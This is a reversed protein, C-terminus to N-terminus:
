ISHLQDGATIAFGAVFAKAPLRRGGSRQLETLCLVGDGCAVHVGDEDVALIKGAAAGRQVAAALPHAQWVKILQDGHLTRAGPYPNFARVQRALVPAPQSWDLLAEAKAIKHAYTAGEPPQATAVLTGDQLRRLADLLLQAGSRALTDHLQGATTQASIPVVTHLLMAGTDLGADMQMITVGTQRDGAAIARQIPAAGRWRPLLSAHVNLCGHRPLQLVWPPLLLGYAAVVMVDPAAAVLAQRAAKADAAHKGDLRLSRPQLVALGREEAQQQVAGAQPKMGRGARRPPQTLVLPVPYGADLLARLAVAAFEPTGAFAVKMM